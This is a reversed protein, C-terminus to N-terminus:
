EKGEPLPKDSEGEGAVSVRGLCREGLVKSYLPNTLRYIKLSFNVAARTLWSKLVRGAM